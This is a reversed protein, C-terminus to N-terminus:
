GKVSGILLGKAFHKQLFPYVLMIPLTAIVIIALKMGEAPPVYDPDLNGLANPDSAITVQRLLLQLTWKSSDNLYLLPSMFDNWIGVAYFLAFTALIPKSLPLVIRLFIGVESAGDIKASEELEVSFNQFFNKIIILNFPNIAGPLILAWYSDILGLNQVVLFTPIMGGSFLMAFVVMNILLKRGRLQRKAMPYAMTFTFFLQVLTGVATVGVTVFISRVFAESTFVYRYAEFTFTEPFIFFARRALESETAFSGALVYLFPLLTIIAVFALFFMNFVDFVRGPKTNHLKHLDSM